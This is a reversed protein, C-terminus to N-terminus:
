PCFFAPTLLIPSIFILNKLEKFSLLSTCTQLHLTQLINWNHVTYRDKLSFRNFKVSAVSGSFNRWMSQFFVNQLNFTINTQENDWLNRFLCCLLYKQRWVLLFLCLSPLFITNCSIRFITQHGWFLYIRSWLFSSIANKSLFLNM